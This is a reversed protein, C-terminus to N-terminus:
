ERTYMGNSEIDLIMDLAYEYYPVQTSLGTLNFGDRVFEEDTECFFENGKLSCFWPIWASDDESQYESSSNSEDQEHDVFFKKEMDANM